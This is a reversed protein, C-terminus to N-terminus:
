VLPASGAQSRQTNSSKLHAVFAALSATTGALTAVLRFYRKPTHHPIALRNIQPNALTAAAKSAVTIVNVSMAADDAGQLTLALTNDANGLAGYARTWIEVPDAGLRNMGGLDVPGTMDIVDGNNAGTVLAVDNHFVNQQDLLM